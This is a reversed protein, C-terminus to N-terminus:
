SNYDQLNRCAVYQYLEEKQTFNFAKGDMTTPAGSTPSFPKPEPDPEPEGPEASVGFGIITDLIGEADKGGFIYANEGDWVASAYNKPFNAIEVSFERVSADGPTYGYVKGKSLTTSYDFIWAETGTWVGFIYSGLPNPFSVNLNLVKSQTINYEYIGLDANNDVIIISNDGDFFSLGGRWGGQWEDLPRNGMLPTLKDTTPNFQYLTNEKEGTAGEGGWFIYIDGDVHVLNPMFLTESPMMSTMTTITDSVPDYKLIERTYNYEGASVSRGGIVYIHTGDWVASAGDVAKPLKDNMVTLRDTTPEYKLIQDSMVVDPLSDGSVQGGFIYAADNAWVVAPASLSQPLKANMMLSDLAPEAAATTITFKSSIGEAMRQEWEKEHIVVKLYCTTSENNPVVWSYSQSEASEITATANVVLEWPGESSSDSFYIDSSPGEVQDSFNIIITYEEGVTLVDNAAPASVSVEFDPVAAGDSVECKIIGNWYDATPGVGGEDYAQGGFCYWIDSSVSPTAVATKMLGTPLTSNLQQSTGLGGNFEWIEKRPGAGEGGFVFISKTTMIGSAKSVNSHFPTGWAETNGGPTHVYVNNKMALGDHGGLFFWYTASKVFAMDYRFDPLNYQEALTANGGGIPNYVQCYSSPEGSAFGGFILIEEGNIEGSAGKVGAYLKDALTEAYVPGGSNPSIKVINDTEGSENVGGLVYIDNGDSVVVADAVAEPLTYSAEIISEGSTNFIYIKNSYTTQGTQGGIIYYDGNFEVAGASHLGQPLTAPLIESTVTYSQRTEDHTNGNRWPISDVKSEDINGLGLLGGLLV